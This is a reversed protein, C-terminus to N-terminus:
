CSLAIGSGLLLLSMPEPVEAGPARVAWKEFGASSGFNKNGVQGTLGFQSWLYLYPDAQGASQAAAAFLSSPIYVFLDTIGSGSGNLGYDLLVANNAGADLDYVLSGLNNVTTTSQNPTGSAFLKLGNLSLYRDSSNASENIDLLFERYSVGGIMRSAVESLKIEHNFNNSSGNDFVNNVTTNYGQETGRSQIQVFSDLSGTGAPKVETTSWVAGFNLIESCGLTCDLNTAHASTSVFLMAISVALVRSISIKM